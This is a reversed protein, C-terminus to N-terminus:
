DHLGHIIIEVIPLPINKSREYTPSCYGYLDNVTTVHYM